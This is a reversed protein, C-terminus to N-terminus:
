ITFLIYTVNILFTSNEIYKCFNLKRKLREFFFHFNSFVHIKIYNSNNNKKSHCTKIIKNSIVCTKNIQPIKSISKIRKPAEYCRLM